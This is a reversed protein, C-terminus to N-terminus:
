TGESDYRKTILVLTGGCPGATRANWGNGTHNGSHEVRLNSVKNPHAWQEWQERDPTNFLEQRKYLAGANRGPSCRSGGVNGM